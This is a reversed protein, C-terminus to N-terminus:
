GLALLHSRLNGKTRCLGLKKRINQRHVEITRKSVGLAEAIKRTKVGNKIFNIVDLEAPTLGTLEKTFSYTIPSLVDQLNREIITIITKQTEGHTKKLKELYPIILNKVNFLIRKEIEKKDDEKHKLLLQLASNMEELNINQIRLEEEMKKRDTVDSWSGEYMAIKGRADRVARINGSVWIISKDRKFVQIEFNKVVDQRSFLRYLRARESPNVYLQSSIDTVKNMLEEVTDYGLMSAISINASIYKGDTTTQFIGETANEFLNRFRTESDKLKDEMEKRMSIDRQVGRYGRLKGEKDIIPTGSAEGLIKRGNRDIFTVEVFKFPERRSVMPMIVTSIRRVEEPAMFEFPARGMVDEPKYGLMRAGAENVYTCRLNEDAEWIMDSVLEAIGRFRELSEQASKDVGGPHGADATQSDHINTSESDKKKM